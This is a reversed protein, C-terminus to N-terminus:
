INDLRDLRLGTTELRESLPVDWTELWVTEADPKADCTRFFVSVTAIRLPNVELKSKKAATHDPLPFWKNFHSRV